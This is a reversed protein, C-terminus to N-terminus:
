PDFDNSRRGRSTGSVALDPPEIKHFPGGEDTCRSGRYTWAHIFPFRLGGFTGRLEEAALNKFRYLLTTWHGSCFPGVRPDSTNEDYNSILLEARGDNTLDVLHKIGKGNEGHYLATFFPGPLGQSDMLLVTISFMPTTRGNYNPGGGTLIYDQTGNGDLDARWIEDPCCM